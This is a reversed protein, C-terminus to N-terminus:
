KDPRVWAQRIRTSVLGSFQGCRLARKAADRGRKVIDFCPGSRRPLWSLLWHSQREDLGILRRDRSCLCSGTLGEETPGGEPSKRDTGNPSPDAHHPAQFRGKDLPLLQGLTVSGRLHAAKRKAMCRDTTVAQQKKTRTVCWRCLIVLAAGLAERCAKAYRSGSGDLRDM